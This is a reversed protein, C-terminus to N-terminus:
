RTPRPINSQPQATPAAGHTETPGDMVDPCFRKVFGFLAADHLPIQRPMRVLGIRQSLRFQARDAIEEQAELLKSCFLPDAERWKKFMGRSIGAEQCCLTINGASYNWMMVFRVKKETDSFEKKRKASVPPPKFPYGDEDIVAM